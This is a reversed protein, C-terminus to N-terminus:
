CWVGITLCTKLTINASLLLSEVIEIVFGVGGLVIVNKLFHGYFNKALFKLGSYYKVVRKNTIM